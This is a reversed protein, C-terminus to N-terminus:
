PGVKGESEIRERDQVEHKLTLIARDLASRSIIWDAWLPRSDTSPAAARWKLYAQEELGRRYDVQVMFAKVTHSDHANSM